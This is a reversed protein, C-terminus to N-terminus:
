NKKFIPEPDMTKLQRAIELSTKPMFPYILRSIIKLRSYLNNLIEGAAQSDEKFLKWPKKEEIYVNSSSIITKIMELAKNIELDNMHKVFKKENFAFDNITPKIKYKKLMILTRQLLNGLDNALDAEYSAEMKALSIDGDKGLPFQSILLYRVADSGWRRVLDDPDIVNGLTKSMKKGSITLFGHAYIQKPLPLKLALLIAPWYIAHFKLIDKGVLHLDAPWYRAFLDQEREEKGYNLATIYNALADVWVYIKEKKDFPLDIGWKASERSVSFDELGQDLIKLIENKRAEPKILLEGRDISKKIQPLYNALRFFYNKEKVLTPKKDHEPCKGNVLEKKTIFKECGECYLGEYDRQYIYDKKYLNNLIFQVGEEHEKDTTRIFKDYSIDLSKWTKKAERAIRDCFNQPDGGEALAKKYIKDGHEDMGTLFFVDDKKQRHFRALIDAVVGTYVHAIHLKANAYFIPTTIFYKM